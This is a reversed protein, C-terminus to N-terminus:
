DILGYRPTRKGDDIFIKGERGLWGIAILVDEVKLKTRSAIEKATLPSRKKLQKWVVGANGGFVEVVDAM